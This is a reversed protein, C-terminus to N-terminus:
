AECGEVWAFISGVASGEDRSTRGYFTVHHIKPRAAPVGAVPKATKAATPSAEALVTKTDM